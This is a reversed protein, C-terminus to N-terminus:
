VKDRALTAGSLHITAAAPVRKRLAAVGRTFLSTVGFKRIGEVTRVAARRIPGPAFSLVYLLYQPKGYRWCRRLCLRAYKIYRDYRHGAANSRTVLMMPVATGRHLDALHPDIRHQYRRYYGQDAVAHFRIVRRLARQKRIWVLLGDSGATSSIQDAHYRLKYTPVDVFLVDHNRSLRLLYDLEEYNFIHENRPGIEAVVDRRLMVTNQCLIPGALYSDFINGYYVRRGLVESDERLADAPVACADPLPLSSKYVADWTKSPDRFSSRHYNKLHYREEFGHDDFGTMEACVMSAAPFKELLRTQLELAYPYLLDDSDVFTFYKGRAHQMGINRAHAIGGHPTRVYRARDGYGSVVAETDDTSADDVVIIEFDSYTQQLVSDITTGILHARNYTPIIVSVAPAATM